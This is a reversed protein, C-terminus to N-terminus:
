VYCLFHKSSNEELTQTILSFYLVNIFDFYVGGTTNKIPMSCKVNLTFVSNGYSNVKKGAIQSVMQLDM